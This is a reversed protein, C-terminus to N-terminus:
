RLTLSDGVAVTGPTTVEAYIGLCAYRGLGEMEIRNHDALTRLIALDRPLSHQALTTMVCRPSAVTFAIEAGGLQAARGAWENEVFGSEAGTDIVLSPRFREVSVDSAPSQAALEALSATTVMQLGALDVFSNKATALAIPFDVTVDSLALAPAAEVGARDATTVTRGGLDITVTGSDPDLRAGLELLRTGISPRKASLIKGSGLSRLAFRRDGPIGAADVDARDIREGAFSKVPYRWLEAVRGVVTGPEQMTRDHESPLRSRFAPRFPIPRVMIVAHEDV